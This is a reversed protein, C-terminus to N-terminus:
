NDLLFADIPKKQSRVEYKAMVKVWESRFKPYLVIKIKVSKLVNLSVSHCKLHLILQM